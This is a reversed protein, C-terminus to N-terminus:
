DGSHSRRLQSGLLAEGLADGCDDAAKPRLTNYHIPSVYTIFLTRGGAGGESPDYHLLYNEEESTVVLIRVRLLDAAARLTLEDGWTRGMRMKRVYDRFADESEFYFSFDDAHGDIYDMVAARLHLHWGQGGFCETSLARFQCNGDDRMEVVDCEAAGLREM